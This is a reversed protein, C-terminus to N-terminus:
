RLEALWWPASDRSKTLSINGSQDFLATISGSDGTVLLNAGIKQHRDVVAKHPFDFRGSSASSVLAIQPSAQALWDATSSTNSGHHPVTILDVKPLRGLMEREAKREIDGTILAKRGMAELLIVCSEDNDQHATPQDPWLVSFIVGDWEWTDGAICTKGNWGLRAGIDLQKELAAVGGSHDNDSHSVILSDVATLGLSRMYPAIVINAASNGSGFLAGTDYIADHHQTQLHVALGHGVDLMTLRLEGETPRQQTKSYPSILCVAVLIVGLGRLRLGNPLYIMALGFVLAGMGVANFSGSIWVATAAEDASVLLWESFELVFRALREAVVLPAGLPLWLTGAVASSLALPVVLFSFLPVAVFNAAPSVLSLQSFFLMTLPALGISLALQLKVLLRIQRWVWFVAAVARNEHSQQRYKRGSLVLLIVSVASFSLWFGALLPAMPDILIVLLLVWLLVFLPRPRRMLLLCLSVAALMLLARQTPIAFGSIWAYALAAAGSFVLLLGRGAWWSARFGCAATLGFLVARGLLAGMAAVIGIHLGSIALLHSIGSRRIREALDDSYSTRDGTVLTQIVPRAPRDGLWHEVVKTLQARVTASSAVAAAESLRVANDSGSLYGRGIINKAALWEAYRSVGVNDFGDPWRVRIPLRWRDGLKPLVDFARYWSVRIRGSYGAPTFEFSFQTGRANQSILPVSSITGDIPLGSLQQVATAETRWADAALYFRAMGAGSGLWFSLMLLGVFRARSVGLFLGLAVLILGCWASVLLAVNSALVGQAVCVGLLCGFIGLSFAFFQASVAAKQSNQPLLKVISLDGEM